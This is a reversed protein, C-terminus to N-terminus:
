VVPSCRFCKGDTLDSVKFYVGCGECAAYSVSVTM